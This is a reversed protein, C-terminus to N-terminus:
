PTSLLQVSFSAALPALLAGTGTWLYQASLVDAAALPVAATINMNSATPFSVFPKRKIANVLVGNRLISTRASTLTTNSEVGQTQVTVLYLGGTLITFSSVGVTIGASFNFASASFALTTAVGVPIVTSTTQLAYPLHTVAVAEADVTANAAETSTAFAVFDAATVVPTLCPYVIGFNPTSPM